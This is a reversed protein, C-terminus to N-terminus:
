KKKVPIWIAAEYDVGGTDGEASYWEINADMAIEYEVNNPLWEQFIQTNVSQLAGPMPGKCPFKAWDMEPFTFISMGEPVPGGQYKGAILYDFMGPKRATDICVGFEGIKHDCVAKEQPTEPAKGLFLPQLYRDGFEDWFKPIEGYSSDFSFERQFGILKFSEMKEVTYEM